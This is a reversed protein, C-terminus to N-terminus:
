RGCQTSRTLGAHDTLSGEDFESLFILFVFLSYSLLVRIRTFRVYLRGIRTLTGM